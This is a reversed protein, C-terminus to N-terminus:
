SARIYEYKEEELINEIDDRLLRIAEIYKEAPRRPIIFHTYDSTQLKQIRVKRRGPIRGVGLDASFAEALYDDTKVKKTDREKDDTTVSSESWKEFRSKTEVLAKRSEILEEHAETFVRTLESLERNVIVYKSRYPRFLLRFVRVILVVVVCVVCFYYLFNLIM